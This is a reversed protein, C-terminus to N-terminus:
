SKENCTACFDMELNSHLLILAGLTSSIHLNAKCLSSKLYLFTSASAQRDEKVNLLSELWYGESRAMESNISEPVLILRARM